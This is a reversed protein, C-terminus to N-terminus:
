RAAIIRFTPAFDSDAKIRTASASRHTQHPQPERKAARPLLFFMYADTGSRGSTSRRRHRSYLRRIFRLSYLAGLAKKAM